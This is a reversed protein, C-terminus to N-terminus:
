RLRAEPSVKVVREIARYVHEEIGPEDPELLNAM